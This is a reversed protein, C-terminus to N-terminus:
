RDMVRAYGRRRGALWAVGSGLLLISAPEPTQALASFTYDTGQWFQSPPFTGYLATATGSGKLSGNFYVHSGQQIKVFGTMTIAESFFQSCSIFPPCENPVSVTVTPGFFSIQGSVDAEVVNPISAPSHLAFDGTGQTFPLPSNNNVDFRPMLGLASPFDNDFIQVAFDPFTLILQNSSIAGFPQTSYFGSVSVPDALAGSALGTVLCAALAMTGLWRRQM